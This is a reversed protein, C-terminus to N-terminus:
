GVILCMFENNAAASAGHTIVAQGQSRSSVYITDHIAAANATMPSFLLTSFGGIRADTITTTTAPAVALTVPLTANLKGGLAGNLVDVASRMWIATALGDKDPGLPAPSYGPPTLLAM